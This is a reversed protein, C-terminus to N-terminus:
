VTFFDFTPWPYQWFKLLILGQITFYATYILDVRHKHDFLKLGSYFFNFVQILDSYYIM